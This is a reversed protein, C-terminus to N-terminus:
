EEYDEMDESTANAILEAGRSRLEQMRAASPRFRAKFARGQTQIEILKVM